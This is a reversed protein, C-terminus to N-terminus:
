KLIWNLLREILTLKLGHKEVEIEKVIHVDTRDGMYYEAAEKDYFCGAIYFRETNFVIYVHKPRLIM